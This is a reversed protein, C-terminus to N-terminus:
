LVVAVIPMEISVSIGRRIVILGDIEFSKWFHLSVVSVVGKFSVEARCLGGGIFVCVYIISCVNLCLLAIDGVYIRERAILKNIIQSFFSGV